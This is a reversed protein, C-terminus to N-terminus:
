STADSARRILVVRGVLDPAVADRAPELRIRVGVGQVLRLGVDTAVFGKARLAGRAAIRREVEDCPTGAPIHLEESTFAEHSHTRQPQRREGSRPVFLVDPDVDGHVARILPTDPEIARIRREIATVEGAPVLDLKNLILLDASTVQDEFTGELDTGDLVQAANIVVVALDDGAWAAVPDRWFSLLTESPLAVGSTEVVIRDPDVRERLEQLTDVLENSLQCCVCGGELEVIADPAAGLLARDIGLAGFENSVIALRVGRRQADDLLHRVLTTKGSGLFGSVVLAPVKRTRDPSAM